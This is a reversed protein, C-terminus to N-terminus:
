TCKFDLLFHRLSTDHAVRQRNALHRRAAAHRRRRQAEIFLLPQDGRFAGIGPVAPVRAGDQPAHREDHERLLHPQRQLLDARSSAFSGRLRAGSRASQAFSDAAPRLPDLLPDGLEFPHLGVSVSHM